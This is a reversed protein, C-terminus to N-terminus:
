ENNCFQVIEFKAQRELKSHKATAADLSVANILWGVWSNHSNPPFLLISQIYWFECCEARRLIDTFPVTSLSSKRLYVTWPDLRIILSTFALSAPTYMHPCRLWSKWLSCSSTKPTHANNSNSSSSSSSRMFKSFSETNSWYM